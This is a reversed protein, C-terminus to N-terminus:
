QQERVRQQAGEAGEESTADESAGEGQERTSRNRLIEEHTARVVVQADVHLCTQDYTLAARCGVGSPM